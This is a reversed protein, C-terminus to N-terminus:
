SLNGCEWLESRPAERRGWSPPMPTPEAPPPPPTPKAERVGCQRRRTFPLPRTGKTPHQPRPASCIRGRRETVAADEDRSLPPHRLKADRRQTPVGPAPRPKPSHQQCGRHEHQARSPDIKQGRAKEQQTTLFRERPQQEMQMEQSKIGHKTSSLVPVPIPTSCCCTSNCVGRLDRRGLISWFSSDRPHLVRRGHGTEMEGYERRGLLAPARLAKSGKSSFCLQPIDSSGATSHETDHPSCHQKEGGRHTSQKQEPAAKGPQKGPSCATSSRGQRGPSDGGPGRQANKERIWVLAFRGFRLKRPLMRQEYGAPDLGQFDSARVGEQAAATGGSGGSPSPTKGGFQTSEGM